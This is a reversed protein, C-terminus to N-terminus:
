LRISQILKRFDDRGFIVPVPYLPNVEKDAWTIIQEIDEDRIVDFGKPIDMKRNM